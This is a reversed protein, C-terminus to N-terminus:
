EKAFILNHMVATLESLPVRQRFLCPIGNPAIEKGLHIDVAEVMQGDIKIKTGQLGIDAIQHQGCSNPCGSWHIHLSPGQGPSLTDLEEAVRKAVQKTEIITKDCFQKGTCSVTGRLFTPPHPSLTELISERLLSDLRFQPVGPLIVNQAPTLRLETVEYRTALSGLELWQASHFSDVPVLLGVNVLHHLRHPSVGIHDRHESHVHQEIEENSFTVGSRTIVENSFRDMGWLDILHFLQAKHRKVREGENRFIELIARCIPVIASKDIVGPITDSLRNYTPGLAGGVRVQYRVGSSTKVPVIGIDNIESHGCDDPCGSISINFKRPLNSFEPNGVIMDNVLRVEDRIDEM